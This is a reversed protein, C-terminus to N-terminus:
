TVNETTINSNKEVAEIDGLLYDPLQINEEVITVTKRMGNRDTETEFEATGTISMLAKDNLCIKVNKPEMRKLPVRIEYTEADTDTKNKNNKSMKQCYQKMNRPFPCKKNSNPTM